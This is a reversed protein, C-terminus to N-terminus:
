WAWSAQGEWNPVDMRYGRGFSSFDKAFWSSVDMYPPFTTKYHM